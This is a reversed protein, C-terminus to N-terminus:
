VSTSPFEHLFHLHALQFSSSVENILLSTFDEDFTIKKMGRESDNDVKAVSFEDM